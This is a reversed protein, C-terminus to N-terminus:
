QLAMSSQYKTRFAPHVPPAHCEPGVILRALDTDGKAPISTIQDTDGQNDYEAMDARPVIIFSSAGSQNYSLEPVLEIHAAYGPSFALLSASLLFLFKKM